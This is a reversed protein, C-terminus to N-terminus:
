TKMPCWGCDRIFPIPLGNGVYQRGSFGRGTSAGFTVGQNLHYVLGFKPNWQSDKFGTDVNHYDHRLGITTTMNKFLQQENQLFFALVHQDHDGVLGSAVHDLTEETGM